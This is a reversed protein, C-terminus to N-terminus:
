RRREAARAAGGVTGTPQESLPGRRSCRNSLAQIGKRDELRRRLPRRYAVLVVGPHRAETARIRDLDSRGLSATEYVTCLGTPRGIAGARYAAIHVGLTCELSRCYRRLESTVPILEALDLDQAVNRRVWRPVSDRSM